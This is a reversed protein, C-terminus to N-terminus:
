GREVLMEQLCDFVIMVRLPILKFQHPEVGNEEERGREREKIERGGM